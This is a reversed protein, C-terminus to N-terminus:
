GGSAWIAPTWSDSWKVLTGLSSASSPAGDAFVKNSYYAKNYSAGLTRFGFRIDTTGTHICLAYLNGAVVSFPTVPLDRQENSGLATAVATEALLAGWTDADVAEYVLLRFQQTTNTTAGNRIHLTDVQGDNPAAVAYGIILNASQGTWGTPATDPGIVVPDTSGGGGAPYPMGGILM